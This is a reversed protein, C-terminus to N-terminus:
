LVNETKLNWQKLAEGSQATAQEPTRVVTFYRDKSGDGGYDYAFAGDPNATPLSVTFEENPNIWAFNFAGSERIPGASVPQVRGHAKLEAKVVVPLPFPGSFYLGPGPDLANLQLFHGSSDFYVFGGFSIFSHAAVNEPTMQAAQEATMQAVGALPYAWSFTVADEHINAAKRADAPLTIARVPSLSGLTPLDLQALVKLLKSPGTLEYMTGNVGAGGETVSELAHLKVKVSRGTSLPGLSQLPEGSDRQRGPEQALELETELARVRALLQQERESAMAQCIHM